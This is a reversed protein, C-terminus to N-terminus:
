DTEADELLNENIDPVEMNLDELTTLGSPFYLKNMLPNPDQDYGTAARKENPNLWYMKSMTDALMNLDEQIETFVTYDFEIVLDDGFKPALWRNLVGKRAEVLPIVADTIMMKRSEIMNNETSNVKTFLGIPVHYANCIEGLIEEKGEIVNLDVPSLGIQQWSLKAPTIMIDGMKNVGQYIQKFKDKISLAQSEQLDSNGEGTLIGAPGQNKFMAGQSIDADKYRGLAMRCSQLPSQGYFMENLQSNSTLPNWFKFHGVADAPIDNNLFTFKYGDVGEFISKPIISVMPSPISYIEKPKKANVGIDPTLGFAYANGTLLKYGDLSEFFETTSQLNNPKLLLDELETNEVLDFSDNKYKILNAFDKTSKALKLLSKYKNYSAKNKVKYIEFPVISSKQTILSIISYVNPLEKYGKEIYTDGSDNPFIWNNQSIIWNLSYKGQKRKLFNLIGM